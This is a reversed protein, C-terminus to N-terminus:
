SESLATSLLMANGGGDGDEDDDSLEGTYGLLEDEMKFPELSFELKRSKGLEAKFILAPVGLEAKFILRRRVPQNAGTRQRADTRRLIGRADDFAFHCKVHLHTCGSSFNRTFRCNM